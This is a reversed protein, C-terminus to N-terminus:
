DHESGNEEDFVRDLARQMGREAVADEDGSLRVVLTGRRYQRFPQSIRHKNHLVTRRLVPRHFLLALLRQATDFM